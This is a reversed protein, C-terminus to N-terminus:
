RDNKTSPAARNKGTAKNVVFSMSASYADDGRLGCTAGLIDRMSWAVLQVAVDAETVGLVVAKRNAEVIWLM